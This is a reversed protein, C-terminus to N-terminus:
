DGEVPLIEITINYSGAIDSHLDLTINHIKVEAGDYIISPEIVEAFDFYCVSDDYQLANDWVNGTQESTITNSEVDIVLTDQLDMGYREDQVVTGNEYYEVYSFSISNTHDVLERPITVKYDTFLPRNANNRAYIEIPLTELSGATVEISFGFDAPADQWDGNDLKVSIASNVKVTGKVSAFYQLVTASALTASLLILWVPIVKLIKKSLIGSM